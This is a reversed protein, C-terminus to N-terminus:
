PVSGRSLKEWAESRWEPEVEPQTSHAACSEWEAVADSSRGQADLVKALLCHAAGRGPDLAVASRLNQEAQHLQHLELTAWGYNKYLSYQVSPEKPKLSMARDLLRLAAGYDGLRLIYLRSLNNYASYFTVDADIAKKYEGLARDYDPIEEYADALNYHAEAYGSNLSLAREYNHMATQLNGHQQYQVGQNNYFRAIAPQALFLSFALVALAFL